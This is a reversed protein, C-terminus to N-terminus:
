PAKTLTGSLMGNTEEAWSYQTMYEGRYADIGPQSGDRWQYYDCCVLEPKIALRKGTKELVEGCGVRRLTNQLDKRLNQFYSLHTEDEWLISMIEDAGCSAGCRDM